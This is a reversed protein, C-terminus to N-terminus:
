IELVRIAMDASIVAQKNFCLFLIVAICGAALCWRSAYGVGGTGGRLAFIVQNKRWITEKSPSEM